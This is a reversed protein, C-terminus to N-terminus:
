EKENRDHLGGFAGGPFASVRAPVRQSDMQRRPRRHKWRRLRRVMTALGRGGRGHWRQLMNAYERLLLGKVDMPRQAVTNVTANVYREEATALRPSHLLRGAPVGSVDRAVARHRLPSAITQSRRDIIRPRTLFGAWRLSFM